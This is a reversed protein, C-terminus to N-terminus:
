RNAKKVLNMMAGNRWYSFLGDAFYTTSSGQSALGLKGGDFDTIQLQTQGEPGLIFIAKTTLRVDKADRIQRTIAQRFKKPMKMNYM